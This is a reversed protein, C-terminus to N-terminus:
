MGEPATPYPLEQQTGMPGSTIHTHLSDPYPSATPSVPVPWGTKPRFFGPDLAADAPDFKFVPNRWLQISQNVQTLLDNQQTLADNLRVLAGILETAFRDEM